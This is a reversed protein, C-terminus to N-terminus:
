LCTQVLPEETTPKFPNGFSPGLISSRGTIVKATFQKPTLDPYESKDALLGPCMTPLAGVICVCTTQTLLTQIEMGNMVSVLTEFLDRSCEARSAWVAKELSSAQASQLHM